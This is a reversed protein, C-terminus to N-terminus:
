HKLFNSWSGPLQRARVFRVGAVMHMFKPQYGLMSKVSSTPRIASRTGAASDMRVCEELVNARGCKLAPAGGPDGPQLQSQVARQGGGQCRLKDLDAQEPHESDLTETQRPM